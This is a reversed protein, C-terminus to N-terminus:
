AIIILGEVMPRWKKEVALSHIILGEVMPRWKKEVALSHIILGEVMPRWKKEVALSHIIYRFLCVSGHLGCGTSSGKGNINTYVLIITTAKFDRLAQTVM